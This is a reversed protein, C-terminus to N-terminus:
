NKNKYQMPTIGVYKKFVNSFHSQSCFGCKYSIYEMSKKNEKLMEKARNVRVSNIYECFTIGAKEKFKSCIYNKSVFLKESLDDLTIKKDFNEDIIKIAGDIIDWDLDHAKNFCNNSYSIIIDEGIHLLDESINCSYIEDFKKKLVDSMDVECKLLFYKYLFVNMYLLTNKLSTYNTVDSVISDYSKLAEEIKGARTCNAVYLYQSM